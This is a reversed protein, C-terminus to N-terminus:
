PPDLRLYDGPRLTNLAEILRPVLLKVVARRNAPLEIIAIKREALNQQYRLNKDSTLFVDFQEEALILLEGNKIGAWGCDQATQVFHGPLVRRLFRPLCEDVLVRM